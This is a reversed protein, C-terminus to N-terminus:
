KTKLEPHQELYKNLEDYLYEYESLARKAGSRKRHELIVERIKEWYENTWSAMLLAIWRIDLVGEKVLVGVGEFFGNILLFAEYFENNKRLDSFEQYSSWSTNMVTNYARTFEKDSMKNYVGLFMQAQRTELTQQQAKLMLEQNKQNNQINMIYYVVGVVIGFAQIFSLVTGLEVM